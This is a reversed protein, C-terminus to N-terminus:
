KSLAVKIALNKWMIEYFHDMKQEMFVITGLGMQASYSLSFRGLHTISMHHLLFYIISLLYLHFVTCLSKSLKILSNDCKEAKEKYM